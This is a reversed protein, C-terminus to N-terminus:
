AKEGWNEKPREAQSKITHLEQLSISHTPCVSLCAGCGNCRDLDILPQSRGATMLRFAIAREVCHDGCTRCVVGNLALCNTGIQARWTWPRAQKHDLAGKQCVRECDGCFVCAAIQLVLEPFGNGGQKLIQQPCAKICDPCGECLTEFLEQPVAYPSRMVPKASAGRGSLFRRRSPDMQMEIKEKNFREATEPLAQLEQSLSSLSVRLLLNVTQGTKKEGDADNWL